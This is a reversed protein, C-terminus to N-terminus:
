YYYIFCLVFRQKLYQRNLTSMFKTVNKAWSIDAKTNLNIIFLYFSLVAHIRFYVRFICIVVCYQLIQQLFNNETAEVTVTTRKKKKKKNKKCNEETSDLLGSFFDQGTDFAKNSLAKLRRDKNKRRQFNSVRM